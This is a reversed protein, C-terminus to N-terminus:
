TLADVFEGLMELCVLFVIMRPAAQQLHDLLAATHKIVQFLRVYLLVVFDHSSQSQATLQFWSVSSVSVLSLSKSSEANSFGAGKSPRYGLRVHRRNLFVPPACGVFGFPPSLKM